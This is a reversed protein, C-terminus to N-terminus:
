EAKDLHVDMQPFPIEIGAADLDRKIAYTLRERIDWYHLPNAWVRVSWDVSSGGLQDLYVQPKPESFGGEVSEAAARLTRRVADLDESYGTGVAVDVRRAPHYTMNEITSGFVSGNPVIIRRNDLTDLTTTFLEIEDVQGTVGSVSIVDGVKFPRFLLLM